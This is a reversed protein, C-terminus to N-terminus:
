TLKKTVIIARNGPEDYYFNDIVQCTFGMKAYWRAADVNTYRTFAYLNKIGQRKLEDEFQRFVTTGYGHRQTSSAIDVIECTLNPGVRYFLTVDLNNEFNVIKYYDDVYTM